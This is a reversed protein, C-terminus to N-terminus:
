IGRSILGPEDISLMGGHRRIRYSCSRRNIRTLTVALTNKHIEENWKLGWAEEFCKELEVPKEQHALFEILKIMPSNHKVPTHSKDTLSILFGLDCDMIWHASLEGSLYRYFWQFRIVADQQNLNIVDQGRTARVKRFLFKLSEPWSADEADSQYADLWVKIDNTDQVGLSVREMLLEELERTMPALLARAMFLFEISNKASYVEDGISSSLLFAIMMKEFCHVNSEAFLTFGWTRYVGLLWRFSEDTKAIQNLALTFHDSAGSVDGELVACKSLFLRTALEGLRNGAVEAVQLAMKLNGNASEFDGLEMLCQAGLQYAVGRTSTYLDTRNLLQNLEDLGASYRGMFCQARARQIVLEPDEHSKDGSHDSLVADFDGAEICARSIHVQKLKETVFNASQKELERIYGPGFSKLRIIEMLISVDEPRLDSLSFTVEDSISSLQGTELKLMVERLNDNKRGSKQLPVVKM